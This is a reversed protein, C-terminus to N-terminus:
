FELTKGLSRSIPIRDKAYKNTHTYTHPSEPFFLSLFPFVEYIYMCLTWEIDPQGRFSARLFCVGLLQALTFCNVQSKLKWDTEPSVSKTTQM